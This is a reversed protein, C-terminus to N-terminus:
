KCEAFIVRCDFNRDSARFMDCLRQARNRCATSQNAVSEANSAEETVKEIKDKLGEDVKIKSDVIATYALAKPELEAIQKRLQQNEGVLRDREEKQTKENAEYKARAKDYGCSRVQGFLLVNAGILLLVAVCFAIFRYPQPLRCLQKVIWNTM